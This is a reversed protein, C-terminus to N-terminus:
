IIESKENTVEEHEKPLLGDYNDSDDSEDKIM